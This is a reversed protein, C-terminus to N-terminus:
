KFTNSTNPHMLFIYKGTNDKGQARFTKGCVLFTNRMSYVRNSILELAYIREQIIPRFNFKVKLVRFAENLVSSKDHCLNVM